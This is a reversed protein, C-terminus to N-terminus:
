GQLHGSTCRWRLKAWNQGFLCKECAAMIQRFLWNALKVFHEQPPIHRFSSLFPRYNASLSMMRPPKSITVSLFFFLLGFASCSVAWGIAARNLFRARKIRLRECFCESINLLLRKRFFMVQFCNFVPCLLSQTIWLQSLAQTTLSKIECEKCLM